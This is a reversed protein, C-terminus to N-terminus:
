QPWDGPYYMCSRQIEFRQSLEEILAGVRRVQCETPRVAVGDAMVCIRITQGSGYWTKHPLVSWQKQWKETSTMQGDGDGVGNGIVFHCNIDETYALGNLAALQELNGGKTGSYYVEVCNWRYPVQAAQSTVAAEVPNLKYYSSLCFPGASPPTSGLAMLVTAGVTMSILLVVWVKEVRPQNAM